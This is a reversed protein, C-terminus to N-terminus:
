IQNLKAFEGHVKKAAENYILAADIESNFLGLNKQRGDIDIYARWKTYVYNKHVDRRLSVGLYKSIGWARKNASNQSQTCFRLNSKQNNLGNGDIHDIIQKDKANLIVRHMIIQSKRGNVRVVRRVYCTHKFKNAYWKWQNLFNFDEDDVQVFFKGKHKGQQSLAILKM